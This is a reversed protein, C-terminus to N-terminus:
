VVSKRDVQAAALAVQAQAVQLAAANQDVASPSIFNQALLERSRDLNTRAIQAQAEAQRLQAVPLADDLQVLMQGARVPQGNAFGLARIRGSVEPRLMVGRSARLSGVASADDDLRVAEVRGVEVVAPGGGPGGPGGAGGPGRAAGGPGSGAQAAGSASVAPVAAAALGAASGRHQLWWAATGAATLGIVAVVWHIRAM